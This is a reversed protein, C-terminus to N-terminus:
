VGRRHVHGARACPTDAVLSVAHQLAEAEIVGFGALPVDPDAYPGDSTTPTGDWATVTVAPGLAAVLDGRERLVDDQALLPM